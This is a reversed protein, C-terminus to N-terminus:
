SLESPVANYNAVDPHHGPGRVNAIDADDLPQFDNDTRSYIKRHLPSM